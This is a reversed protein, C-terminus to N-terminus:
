PAVLTASNKATAVSHKKSAGTVSCAARLGVQVLDEAVEVFLVRGLAGM